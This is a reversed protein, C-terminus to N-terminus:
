ALAVRVLVIRQRLLFVVLQESEKILCFIRVTVVLFGQQQRWRCLLLFQLGLQITLEFLSFTLIRGLAVFIYIGLTLPLVTYSLVNLPFRQSRRLDIGAATRSARHETISRDNYRASM